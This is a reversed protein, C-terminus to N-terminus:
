PHQHVERNSGCYGSAVAVAPIHDVQEHVAASLTGQAQGAKAIPVMRLREKLIQQSTLCVRM